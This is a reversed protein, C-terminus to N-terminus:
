NARVKPAKAVKAVVHNHKHAKVIKGYRTKKIVVTKKHGVHKVVKARKHHKAVHRKHGKLKVVKTTTTTAAKMAPQAAQATSALPAIALGAAILAATLTKFM